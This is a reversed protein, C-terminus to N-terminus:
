SIQPLIFVPIEKVGMHFAVVIRHQGDEVGIKGNEKFCIIPLELKINNECISIIREIKAKNWNNFSYPNLENFHIKDLQKISLKELSLNRKQQQLLQHPNEFDWQIKPTNKIKKILEDM